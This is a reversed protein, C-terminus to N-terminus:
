SEEREARLIPGYLRGIGILAIGLVLFSLIRLVGTLASADVVFVKVITATLLVLGALRLAKDPARVGAVILGISVILFGLSYGYAENAASLSEPFLIGGHYLQRVFLATGVILVALFAAFWPWTSARAAARRRALYLWGAGLLYQASVLNLVPVAGVWQESFVPNFLVIDLWLLRAAALATLLTGAHRAGEPDLRPLRLWGTGLLWGAAFLVQTILTREWLGRAVFDSGGTLGVAQKFWVYLAAVAFAGAVVAVGRQARMPLPPLAFRIAALLLAPVALASLTRMADPLDGALVPRGLLAEISVYSFEPVTWLARAVAGVMALVVVTGLALDGLRRAALALGLAVACWGAALWDPDALERMAAGALLAFGAGAALLALDAPGEASARQRQRWVLLAPGLALAAALLGWQTQTLYDPRLCRLVLWPGALGFTGVMTWMPAPARRVLVLGAGGFLLGAGIAAERVLTDPGFGAKVGLLLLTFVLAAAPAPWHERRLAALLIAALSLAGFLGWAPAGLDTRAVLIALQLLGLGLPQVLMLTRGAGPRVLAAALALAAIFFGALLADDASRDAIVYFTWVFSLVTAAAALWTWGRRWALAFLAIDLLALYALLPAASAQPDGVLVPTLFGGVLGMVATPVGHRLSLGLAAATVAAMGAFATRSDLLAYLVHSGYVTAYLVAIGAGVLAQAIRPDDALRGARAWEGTGLLVLGFLGAGVMRAAPTILGIEISYRILFIAALVLAIGGLWILLRGAVLREFLGGLTERPEEPLVGGAEPESRVAQEAEALQEPEAVMAPAEATAAAGAAERRAQPGTAGADIEVNGPEILGDLRQELVTVRSKLNSNSILLAILAFLLILFLLEM